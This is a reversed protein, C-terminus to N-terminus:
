NVKRWISFVHPIRRVDRELDFEERAVEQLGFESFQDTYARELPWPPGNTEAGDERMRAHVLLTGGPEVLSSVAGITTSLTEPPISQLTYCEHVLDFAGIGETPLDFLDAVHYDVDSERFRQEAWSIADGSFDFGITAYGGEALAEANDGLGCGVDVARKGGGSNNELWDALKHKAAMDAWPVLAADGQAQQYVQDFFQDRKPETKLNNHDIKNIRNQAARRREFFNEETM